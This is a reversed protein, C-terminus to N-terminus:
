DQVHSPFSVWCIEKVASDRLVPTVTGAVAVFGNDSIYGM